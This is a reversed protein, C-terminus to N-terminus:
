PSTVKRDKHLNEQSLQEEDPETVLIVSYRRRAPVQVLSRYESEERHFQPCTPHTHNLVGSSGRIRAGEGEAEM